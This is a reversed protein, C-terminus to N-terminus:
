RQFNCQPTGRQGMIMIKKEDSQKVEKNIDIKKIGWNTITGFEMKEKKIETRERIM